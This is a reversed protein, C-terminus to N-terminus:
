KKQTLYQERIDLIAKAIYEQKLGGEVNMYLFRMQEDILKIMKEAEEIPLYDGIRNSIMTELKRIVNYAESNINHEKLQEQCAKAINERLTKM